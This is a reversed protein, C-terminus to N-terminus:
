FGVSGRGGCIARVAGIVRVTTVLHRREGRGVGRM